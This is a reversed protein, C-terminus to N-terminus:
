KQHPSVTPYVFVPLPHIETLSPVPMKNEEVKTTYLLTSHDDMYFNITYQKPGKAGGGACASLILSASVFALSLFRKKM